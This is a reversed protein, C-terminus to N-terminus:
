EAIGANIAVGNKRRFNRQEHGYWFLRRDYSLVLEFDSGLTPAVQEVPFYRVWQRAVVLDHLRNMTARWRPRRCMDKYILFGGPRVRQGVQQLFTAQVAPPVHHMVDVILVVDFQEDPLLTEPPRAFFQPRGSAPLLAAALEAVAIAAASIDVGVSPGIKGALALVNLLLGNGCGVDLVRSGSPVINLVDAIPAITSRHRTMFRAVPGTGGYLRGAAIRIAASTFPTSSIAPPNM